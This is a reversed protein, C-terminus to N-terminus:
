ASRKVITMIFAFFKSVTCSGYTLTRIYFVSPVLRKLVANLVMKRCKGKAKQNCNYMITLPFRMLFFFLLMPFAFSGFFGTHFSAKVNLRECDFRCYAAM